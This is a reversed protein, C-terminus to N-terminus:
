AYKVIVTIVLWRDPTEEVAYAEVIKRRYIRGQWKRNYAFTHVLRTRRFKAPSRTGHKVTYEVEARTCGREQM